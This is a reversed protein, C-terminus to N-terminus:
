KMWTFALHLALEESIEHQKSNSNINGYPSLLLIYKGCVICRGITYSDIDINLESLHQRYCSYLSQMIELEHTNSDCAIGEDKRKKCLALREYEKQAKNLREELKGNISIRDQINKSLNM